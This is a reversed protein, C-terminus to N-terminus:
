KKIARIRTKYIWEKCSTRVIRKIKSPIDDIIINSIDENGFHNVTEMIIDYVSIKNTYVINNDDIITITDFRTTAPLIGGVTGDLQAMKDKFQLNISISGGASSSISFGTIFFIGQPFWIIKENIYDDTNNTIGLELYVKKSIFSDHKIKDSDYKLLDIVCSLNCTRRVSSDGAKNLNGDIIKGEIDKLPEETSYELLTIKVWQERIQLMDIKSLFEKDNSYIYQKKM